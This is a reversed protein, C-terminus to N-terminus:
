LIQYLVYRWYIVQPDTISNLMKNTCLAVTILQKSLIIRISIQWLDYRIVSQYALVTPLDTNSISITCDTKCELHVISLIMCYSYCIWHCKLSNSGKRYVWLLCIGIIVSISSVASHQYIKHNLKVFRYYVHIPLKKADM